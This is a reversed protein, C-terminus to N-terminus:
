TRTTSCGATTSSFRSVTSQLFGEMRADMDSFGGCDPPRGAFFEKSRTPTTSRRRGAPAFAAGTEGLYADIGEPDIHVFAGFSYVFDISEDEVGPLEYGPTEMFELKAADDPFRELLDALVGPEARRRRGGRASSTARGGAEAPM